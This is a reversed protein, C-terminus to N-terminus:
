DEVFGFVKRAVALQWEEFVPEDNSIYGRSVDHMYQVDDFDVLIVKVEGNRGQRTHVESYVDGRRVWRYILDRHKGLRRSAERISVLTEM